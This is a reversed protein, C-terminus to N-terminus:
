ITLEKVNCDRPLVSPTFTEVPAPPPPPPLCQTQQFSLQKNKAAVMTRLMERRQLRGAREERAKLRETSGLSFTGSKERCTVRPDQGVGKRAGRGIVAVVVAGKTPTLAWAQQDGGGTAEEAAGPTPDLAVQGSTEEALRM